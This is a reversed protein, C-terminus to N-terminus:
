VKTSSVYSFWSNMWVQCWPGIQYGSHKRPPLFSLFTGYIVYESVNEDRSIVVCVGCVVPPHSSFIQSPPLKEAKLGNPKGVSDWRMAKVTALVLNTHLIGQQNFHKFDYIIHKGIIYFSNVGTIHKGGPLFSNVGTIHKGVPLFSNVGTRLLISVLIM